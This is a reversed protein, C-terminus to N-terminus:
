HQRLTYFQCKEGLPFVSFVFHLDNIVSLTLYMTCKIKILITIDIDTNVIRSKCTFYKRM